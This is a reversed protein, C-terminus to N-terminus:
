ILGNCQLSAYAKLTELVKSGVEADSAQASPFITGFNRQLSRGVAESNQCGALQTLSAITEGNGRAADKSFAVRNTEVFAKASESGGGGGACNSTGSSIGFTQSASTGNTTAALIQMFAGSDASFLLSGLGCGAAGYAAGSSASAPAVEEEVPAEEAPAEEEGEAAAGEEAGSEEAAEGGEEAEQALAQGTVLTAALGLLVIRQLM